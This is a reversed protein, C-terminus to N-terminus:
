YHILRNILWHNVSDTLGDASLLEDILKDVLSATERKLRDPTFSIVHLLELLRLTRSRTPSYEFCVSYASYAQATQVSAISQLFGLFMKICIAM